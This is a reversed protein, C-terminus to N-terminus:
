PHSGATKPGSPKTKKSADFHESIDKKQDVKKKIVLKKKGKPAGSGSLQKKISGQNENKDAM